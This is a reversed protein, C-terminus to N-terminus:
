SSPQALCLRRQFHRRISRETWLYNKTFGRKLDNEGIRAAYRKWREVLYDESLNSYHNFELVGRVRNDPIPKCSHAGVGYNIGKIRPSFCLAKYAWPRPHFKMTVMRFDTPVEESVMEWQKCEFIVVQGRYEALRENGMLFEDMDCVVVWDSPDDKWCRNKVGRMTQNDQVGHSDYHRLEGKPHAKVFEQSGDDSGNDYVVIRDAWKYHDFFHPLLFIENWCIVHVTVTQEASEM